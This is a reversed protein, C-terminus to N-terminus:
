AVRGRSARARGPRGNLRTEEVPSTACNDTEILRIDDGIDRQLQARKDALRELRM